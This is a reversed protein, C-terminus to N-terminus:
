YVTHYPTKEATELSPMIDNHYSDQEKISHVSLIM